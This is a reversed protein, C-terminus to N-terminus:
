WISEKGSGGVMPTTPFNGEAKPHLDGGGGGEGEGCQQEVAVELRKLQPNFLAELSKFSSGANSTSEPYYSQEVLMAAYMAALVGTRRELNGSCPGKEGLSTSIFDCAEDILPEVQEATPKTQTNFTGALGGGPVKTRARIYSAVQDVTPRWPVPQEPGAPPKSYTVTLDDTSIHAATLPKTGDDWLVTYAGGTEPAALTARYHGTGAPFEVIGATSRATVVSEDSKRLIQVGITGVLGTPAGSLESYVAEGPSAYITSM